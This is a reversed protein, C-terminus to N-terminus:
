FILMNFENQSILEKLYLSETEKSISIDVPKMDVKVKETLNKIIEISNLTVTEYSIYSIQIKYKGSQLNEFSFVGDLNSMTKYNTGTISVTAGSLTEGTGKDVIQGKITGTQGYSSLSILLLILIQLKQILKSKTM